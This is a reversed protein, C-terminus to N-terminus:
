NHEMSQYCYNAIVRAADKHSFCLAKNERLERLPQNSRMREIFEAVLLGNLDEDDVYEMIGLNVLVHANHTQHDGAAHPYPVCLGTRGLATMESLSGAGARCIVIHCSAYCEGPREFFERVDAAFGNNEYAEKVRALKGAGSQHIFRFPGQLRCLCPLADILAQNISEAGQSGGWVLITFLSDDRKIGAAQEIIEARVPNGTLMCKEQGIKKEPGPLGLFIKQAFRSLIGNVLGMAANQEQLLLPIKKFRAALGMPLAAYGGVAIIVQPKEQKIIRLSQRFGKCLAWLSGIKKVISRGRFPRAPIVTFKFGSGPMVQMDMKSGGNVFYIHSQSDVDLLAKAISLAPFLHGGTGGGAIIVRM